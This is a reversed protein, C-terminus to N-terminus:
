TNSESATYSSEGSHGDEESEADMAEEATVAEFTQPEIPEPTVDLTPESVTPM